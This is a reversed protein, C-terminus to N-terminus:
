GLQRTFSHLEKSRLQDLRQLVQVFIRYYKAIQFRGVDQQVLESIQFKRVEAVRSFQLVKHWTTVRLLLTM